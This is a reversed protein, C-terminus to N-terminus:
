STEMTSNGACGSGSVEQPSNPVVYEFVMELELQAEAGRKAM